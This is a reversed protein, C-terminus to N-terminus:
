EHCVEENLDILNIAADAQACSLLPDLKLAMAVSARTPHRIATVVAQEHRAFCDLWAGVKPPPPACLRETVRGQEVTVIRESVTGDSMLLNATCVIPPVRGMLASMTPVLAHQYWPMDRNKLSPPYRTPAQKLEALAQSRIDALMHSRGEAHIPAGNFLRFYKLPVAQFSAIMDATIGWIDDGDEHTRLAAVLEGLVDRGACALNYLFGRHNLGAYDWDLARPDVDLLFALRRHTVTPLECVGLCRQVGEQAILATSIGLPNVLNLVWAEPCQRAVRAGFERVEHAIRLGAQLGGPGMTEDSLTRLERALVEDQFRGALGGYRAQHVVITARDLAEDLITTTAVKWGPLAAEAFTRISALAQTDRGHLMLECPEDRLSTEGVRHCLEVTFPSSGGVVVIKSAM